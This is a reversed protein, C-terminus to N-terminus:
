VKSQAASLQQELAKLQSELRFNAAALEDNMNGIENLKLKLQNVIATKRGDLSV